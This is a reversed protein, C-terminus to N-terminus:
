IQFLREAQVLYYASKFLKEMQEQQEKEMSLLVRQLPTEDRRTCARNPSECDEHQRSAEHKKISEVKM